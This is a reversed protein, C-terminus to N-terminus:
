ASELLAKIRKETAEIKAETTRQKEILTARYDRADKLKEAQHKDNLRIKM